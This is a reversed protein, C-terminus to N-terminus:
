SAPAFIKLAQAIRAIIVAREEAPRAQHDAVIEAIFGHPDHEDDRTKTLLDTLEDPDTTLLYHVQSLSPQELVGHYYVTHLILAQLFPAAKVRAFREDGDADTSQHEPPLILEALNRATIHADPGPRVELLPNYPWPRLPQGPIPPIM